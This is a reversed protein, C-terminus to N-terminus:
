EANLHAPNNQQDQRHSFELFSLRSCKDAAENTTLAILEDGM